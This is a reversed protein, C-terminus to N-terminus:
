LMLYLKEIEEKLKYAREIDKHYNIVVDYGEKAFEIITASGIGKSSGTVLVVKNM